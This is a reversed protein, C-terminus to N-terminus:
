ATSAPALLLRNAGLGLRIVVDRARGAKAHSYVATLITGDSRLVFGTSQLYRPADNVNAGLLDSIRDPDAEHAVPFAVQRKTVLDTTTAEDDVSFAAVKTGRSELTEKARSYATLQTNCCPCWSGRYILVVGYGGAVDDPQALSNGGVLPLQLSPFTHGNSLRTM